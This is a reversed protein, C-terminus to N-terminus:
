SAMETQAQTQTQTQPESASVPAPTQSRPPPRTRGCSRAPRSQAEASRRSFKTPPWSGPSRRSCSPVVRGSRPVRSSAEAADLKEFPAGAATMAEALVDLGDGFSLQGTSTLLTRGSEAELEHWMPKATLALSVYYPDDYGLRFVRSSGKSGARPHGVTARELLLVERQRRALARAVALGLLGGGM